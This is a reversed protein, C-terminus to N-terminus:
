LILKSVWLSVLVWTPVALIAWLTVPQENFTFLTMELWSIATDFANM